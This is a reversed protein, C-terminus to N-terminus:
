RNAEDLLVRKVNLVVAITQSDWLVHNDCIALALIKDLSKIVSAANVMTTPDIAKAKEELNLALELEKNAAEAKRLESEKEKLNRQLFDIQQQKTM